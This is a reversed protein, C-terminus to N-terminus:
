GGSPQAQIDRGCYRCVVAAAKITEACWPCTQETPAPPTYINGEGPLPPAQMLANAENVGEIFGAATPAYNASLIAKATAVEDLTGEEVALMLIVEAHDLSQADVVDAALDRANGCVVIAAIAPIVRAHLSRHSGDIV